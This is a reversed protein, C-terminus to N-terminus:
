LAMPRRVERRDTQLLVLRDGEEGAHLVAKRRDNEQLLLRRDEKGNALVHVGAQKCGIRVGRRCHPKGKFSTWHLHENEGPLSRSLFSVQIRFLRNVSSCIMPASRSCSAPPLVM